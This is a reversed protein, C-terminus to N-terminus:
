LQLHFAKLSFHYHMGSVNFCENSSNKKNRQVKEVLLCYSISSTSVNDSDSYSVYSNNRPFFRYTKVVEEVMEFVFCKPVWNINQLM